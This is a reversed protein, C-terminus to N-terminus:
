SGLEDGNGNQPDGGENQLNVGDNQTSNADGVEHQPPLEINNPVEMEKKMSVQKDANEKVPPAENAIAMDM